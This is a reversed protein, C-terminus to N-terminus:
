PAERAGKGDRARAAFLANLESYPLADRLGDFSGRQLLERAARAFAGWAARALASGVSIRRVGLDRLVDVSLGSVPSSMIVNLPKPAVARVLESIQAPESVGPAFLCDAGAQAFATLRQRAVQFADPHRVLFAECRGTLLVPRGSGDIAARAARIRDIAHELEYLPRERDGTADEISLGAVGTRVCLQVNDHVGQAEHAYGSEFDASVPLETANVIERVHALMADRPVAWAADPLGRSFAFGGSTTALAEFGLQELFLASGVDWPNPLVFCGSQHLDGFRTLADVSSPTAMRVLM